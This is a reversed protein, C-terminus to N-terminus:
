HVDEVPGDAQPTGFNPSGDTNWTFQQMRISRGAMTLADSTKAHYLLWFSKGDDSMAFSGRGPSYIGKSTDSAFVPGSKKWSKPDLPDGGVYTLLGMCYKAARTNSASYVIFTKGDHYLATPGEAIPNLQPVSAKEWPLKPETILVDPGVAHLPDKLEVMRVANEGNDISATMLYLKGGVKLLSPDISPHPLPVEGQLTYASLPDDTASRLVYIAQGQPPRRGTFYIWWHGDMEWITPSMLQTMNDTPEFVVKSHTAVRSISPGYWLTVNRGTTALLLRKGNVSQWTIFPDPHNLIPNRLPEQAVAVFASVLLFTVIRVANV